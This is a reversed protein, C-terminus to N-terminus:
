STSFCMTGKIQAHPAGLKGKKQKRWFLKLGHVTMRSCFPGVVRSIACRTKERAYVAQKAVRCHKFLVVCMNKFVYQVHRFSMLIVQDLLIREIDHFMGNDTSYADPDARIQSATEKILATIQAKWAKPVHRVDELIEGAGGVEVAEGADGADGVDEEDRQRKKGRCKGINQLLNACDETTMSQDHFPIPMAKM